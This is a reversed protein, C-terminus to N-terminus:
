GSPRHYASIYQVMPLQLPTRYYSVNAIQGHIGEDVGIQLTDLRIFPIARDISRVLDGNVFLDLKGDDCTLVINNWRQLPPGAYRVRERGKIFVSMEAAMANYKLELVDGYKLVTTPKTYGVGISPPFSDLFLWFSFSYAYTPAEDGNLETYTATNNPGDISLPKNGIVEKGRYYARHAQYLRRGVFWLLGVAGGMLAMTGIVPVRQLLTWGAIAVLIYFFLSRTRDGILSVLFVVSYLIVAGAAGVAAIGGAVVALAREWNKMDIPESAPRMSVVQYVATLAALVVSLSILLPVAMQFTNNAGTGSLVMAGMAAGISLAGALLEKARLTSLMTIAVLRSMLAMLVGTVLIAITSTAGFGRKGTTWIIRAAAIGTSLVAAGVAASASRSIFAVVGVLATLISAGIDRLEVPAALWELGWLWLASAVLYGALLAFTNTDILHM